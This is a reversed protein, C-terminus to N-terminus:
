LGIFSASIIYYAKKCDKSTEWKKASHTLYKLADTFFSFYNSILESLDHAEGEM